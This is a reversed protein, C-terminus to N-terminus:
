PHQYPRQLRLGHTRRHLRSLSQHAHLRLRRQLHRRQRRLLRLWHHGLQQHPYLCHDPHVPHHFRPHHPTRHQHRQAPLNSLPRHQRIRHLLLRQRPEPGPHRRDPPNRHAPHYGRPNRRPPLNPQHHRLHGRHDPLHPRDPRPRSHLPPPLHPLGPRPSAQRGM